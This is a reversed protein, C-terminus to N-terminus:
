KGIILRDIKVDNGNTLRYTYLGAALDSVNFNVNYVSGADVVGIFVDAVKQGTLNYLELTTKAQHAAKFTFMANTNTPNPSVQIESGIRENSIAETNIVSQGESGGNSSASPSFSISQTCTTSNGSCDVATWQREITYDPCCDLEFAFDGAGSVNTFNQDANTRFTGSYSFWGGFANDAANYNNAGDGLQFGFYNNAPAHALNIASGAYNGYGSLEANPGAQLLFYTWSAFNADVGGCDAKYSTPFSQSSWAAWDWGGEFWVDVNWGTGPNLVNELQAVLHISGGPYQVLSGGVVQYWRHANPMNYMMMAWDYSYGCSNGAPRAPTILDCDAISGEAPTEGLINEEYYVQVDSDCGDFATVSAPAPVADECNLVLDAPCGSLTPDTTDEFSIYQVFENSANGCADVAVWAREFAGTCGLQMTEGDTYSVTYESCDDSAVPTVVEADSGCEYVFETVNAGWVPASNDSVNIVQTYSAQNGCADTATYTREITYSAPCQGPVIVDNRTVTVDSCIDSATAVAINDEDTCNREENEPAYTFVPATSDVITITRSVTTSNGCPDVATWSQSIVQICGDQSTSSAAALELEEACNDSWVPEYGPVEAGCEITVDAPAVEVSPATVDILNIMQMILGATENGCIDSVAYTRIIQGACGGSVYLDTFTINVENCDTASIMIENSVNDCPMEVEMDYPNLVPAQTDSITIYQQFYSVNGCEDSATWTRTIVGQCSNGDLDSDAYNLSVEGCNDSASPQIVPIEEGCEYSYVNLQEGFVPATQDVVYVYRTEVVQNGCNDYARYTRELTYSQPCDGAISSEEVAIEVNDDCNDAATYLGFGPVEEDCNVTVNEPLSTFYPNTTDVITVVTTATTSNGCHDTATWTYTEITTCGDYDSNFSSEIELEDDCNDAFTAPMISYEDGCEVTMDENESAIEPAVEDTLTIVQIFEASVNGCIDTAVYTRIVHGACGGSVGLDSFDLTYENCNDSVNVYIGAYDDCPRSVENEGSIVPATTDQVHIYQVFTSSNGCEDTATWVRNFTSFCSNGEAEGDAYSLSVIGCNDSASPEIVPIDTNCEYTFDNNQEGFVPATVDVVTITQTEVVENGCNDYGRFVRYIFYNQPCSGPMMDEAFAVEVEADCNDIAIPYVVAPAEEDCNITVDAPFEIFEPNTTDQVHTTRTATSQNDCYDNAVWTRIIDYTEPCDDDQGVYQESYTVVVEQGCNDSGTVGANDNLVVDSCEVTFDEPLGVFEPATTDLISIFQEAESTNGCEDTAQYVRHLVGLCGGSQLVEEIVVVTASGCNDSATIVAPIENCEIHTYYEYTDFVPATSDQVHITQTFTASANQCQDVGYWSRVITYSSPCDGEMYEENFYLAPNQDCNDSIGVEAAAPVEDCEATIEAAPLNNLVPVTTDVITITQVCEARNGCLDTAAWTRTITSLCLGNEATEGMFEITVDGSCNDTADIGAAIAPVEDSCQITVSEPCNSFVPATTDSVNVQQSVITAHGCADEARYFNTFSTTHPCDQDQGPDCTLDVNVDGHGSIAQNNAFGEYTFWGSMGNSCNKNNAGVGVQFGFYYNAPMHYLYLEVGALAGAGTLTSFGGILEYFNWDLFNSSACSLMLDNKYNRGLSSWAAWTAKNDLWMDVVFQEDANNTNVVTGYLHATGDAFQDFHGGNADFVYNASSASSLTPLWLAWDAGPGIATSAVCTSQMEGTQSSWAQVVAAGSCADMAMANQFNAAEEACQVNWEADVGSIAPGQSDQVTILQTCVEVLTDLTVIWTRSILRNCDSSSLVIDEFQLILPAYCFEGGFEPVGTYDFDGEQGCEVTVDPLCSVNLSLVCPEEVDPVDCVGLYDGHALHAPVASEDVYITISNGNGLGHCVAVLGPAPPASSYQGNAATSGWVFFLLCVTLAKAANLFRAGFFDAGGVLSTCLTTSLSM